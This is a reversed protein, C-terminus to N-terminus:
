DEEEASQTVIPTPIVTADPYESSFVNILANIAAQESPSVWSHYFVLINEEEQTNIILNIISGASILLIIFIILFKKLADKKAKKNKM